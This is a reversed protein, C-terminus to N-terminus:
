NTAAEDPAREYETCGNVSQFPLKSITGGGTQLVGKVVLIDSILPERLAANVERVLRADKARQEDTKSIRYVREGVQDPDYIQGLILPNEFWTRLLADTVRPGLRCVFGVKENTTVTLIPTVPIKGTRNSNVSRKVPAMISRIQVHGVGEGRIGFSRKIQLEDDANQALAPESMLMLAPVLLSIFRWM